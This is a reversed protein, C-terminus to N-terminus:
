NGQGNEAEEAIDDWVRDIILDAFFTVWFKQRLKSENLKDRLTENVELVPVLAKAVDDRRILAGGPFNHEVFTYAEQAAEEWMAEHNDYFALLNAREMRQEAALTLAMM